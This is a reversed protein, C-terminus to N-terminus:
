QLGRRPALRQERRGGSTLLVGKDTRTRIGASRLLTAALFVAQLVKARRSSPITVELAEEM